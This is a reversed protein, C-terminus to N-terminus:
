QRPEDVPGLHIVQITVLCAPHVLRHHGHVEFLKRVLSAMNYVIVDVLQKM